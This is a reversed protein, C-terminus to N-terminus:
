AFAEVQMYRSATQWEDNQEFPGAGVPRAISAENPVIGVVDARRKVEKDLRAIPDTSHLKKRHQRPFTMYTLVGNHAADIVLKTGELGRTHLGRPFDVWFTEAESPGLGLGVIERERGTERPQSLSSRPVRSSGAEKTPKPTRPTWGSTPGTATLRRALFASVREDIDRCLKSVTSKFIGEIGMAPALADVRRTSVGSIWAEQVVAVPTTESTKCPELFGPAYSGQRPKPVKLNLTAFRTTRPDASREHRGAGILGEGDAEMIPRPVAEAVGRLFDGGDQKALLGSLDMDTETM